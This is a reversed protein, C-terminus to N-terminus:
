RGGLLRPTSGTKPETQPKTQPKVAAQSQSKPVVQTSSSTPVNLQSVQAKLSHLQGEISAISALITAVTVDSKASSLILSESSEIWASVDSCYRNRIVWGPGGRLRDNFTAEFKEEVEEQEQASLQGRLVHSYASYQELVISTM